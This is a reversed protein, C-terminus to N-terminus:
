ELENLLRLLSSFDEEGRGAQGLAQVEIKLKLEKQNTLAIRRVLSLLTTQMHKM